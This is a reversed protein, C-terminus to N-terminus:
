IGLLSKCHKAFSDGGLCKTLADAVMDATPCYVIELTGDGIKERVYNFRVAVHKTRSTTVPNYALAITPQNDEYLVLPKDMRLGIEELLNRLYVAERAAEDLAHFEAEATSQAVTAQVKCKWSIAAGSMFFCYGSVSRASIPVNAWTADSNATCCIPSFM